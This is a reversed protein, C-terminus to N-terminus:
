FVIYVVDIAQFNTRSEAVMGVARRIPQPPTCGPDALRPTTQIVLVNQFDPAARAAIRVMAAQLPLGIDGVAGDAV